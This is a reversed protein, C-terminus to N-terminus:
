YGINGYQDTFTIVYTYTGIPLDEPVSYVIPTGSSWSTSEVEIGVGLLEITYNLPHDDTAMWTFNLRTYDDYVVGKKIQLEKFFGDEEFFTEPETECAIKRAEYINDAFILLAGTWDEHHEPKSRRCEFLKM